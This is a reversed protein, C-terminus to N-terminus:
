AILDDDLLTTVALRADLESFSFTTGANIDFDPPLMVRKGHGRGNPRPKKQARIMGGM